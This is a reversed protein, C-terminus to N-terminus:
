IFSGTARQIGILVLVLAITYFVATKQNKQKDTEARKGLSFGITAVVAAIIMLTPHEVNRGRLIADKMIVGIGGPTNGINIVLQIIGLIVQIHLFGMTAAFIGKKYSKGSAAFVFGIVISALLLALVVWRLHTHLTLLM